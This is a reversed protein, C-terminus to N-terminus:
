ENNIELSSINKEDDIKFILVKRDRHLQYLLSSEFNTATFERDEWNTLKDPNSDMFVVMKETFKIVDKFNIKIKKSNIELSKITGRVKMKKEKNTNELEVESTSM